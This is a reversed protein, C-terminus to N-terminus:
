LAVDHPQNLRLHRDVALRLLHQHRLDIQGPGRPVVQFVGLREHLSIHNGDPGPAIHHIRAPHLASLGKPHIGFFVDLVQPRVDNCFAAHREDRAPVDQVIRSFDGRPLVHEQISLPADRAGVELDPFPDVMIPIVLDGGMSRDLRAPARDNRCAFIHVYEPATKLRDTVQAQRSPIVDVDDRIAQIGVKM